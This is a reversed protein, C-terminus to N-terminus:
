VDMICTFIIGCGVWNPVCKKRPTNYEPVPLGYACYYPPTGEKFTFHTVPPERHTNPPIQNTLYPNSFPDHPQQTYASLYSHNDVTPQPNQYGTSYYFNQTQVNSSLLQQQQQQLPVNYTASPLTPSAIPASATALPALANSSVTSTFAPPLPQARPRHQQVGFAGATPQSSAPRLNSSQYRTGYQDVGTTSRANPARQQLQPQSQLQVNSTYAGGASQTNPNNFTPTEGFNGSSQQQYTPQQGRIM